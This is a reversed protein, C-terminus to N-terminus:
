RWLDVHPFRQAKYTRYRWYRERVCERPYSPHERKIKKLANRRVNRRWVFVLRAILGSVFAIM